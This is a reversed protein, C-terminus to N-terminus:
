NTTIFNKQIKNIENHRNWNCKCCLYKKTKYIKFEDYDSLRYFETLILIDYEPHEGLKLHEILPMLSKRGYRKNGAKCNVNWELIKMQTGRKSEEWGGRM